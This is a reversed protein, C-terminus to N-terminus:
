RADRCCRTGDDAFRSDSPHGHRSTCDQGYFTRSWMTGGRVTHWTSDVTAGARFPEPPGTWVEATWESVNGNLDFVGEPSQCRPHSGSPALPAPQDGPGSGDIPTNCAAPDREPGYSQRWGATGKCAREWEAASCLRKGVAACADRAETWSLETRPLAGAENPFEYRDICYPRLTVPRPAEMWPHRPMPFGLEVPGGPISVM